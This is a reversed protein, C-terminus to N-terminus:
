CPYLLHYIPTMSWLIKEVVAVDGKNDSNAKMKNAITLTRAFYDNVSEGEKMHLIEFEKRLAQLQARKVWSTGQYNQKLSDWIDNITDKNLISDLFSHDLAQFLYNKAKLDRLKQDDINKRQVETLPTGEASKPIGNEVLGLVGKFM